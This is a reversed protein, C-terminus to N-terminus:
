CVDLSWVAQLLFSFSKFSFHVLIQGHGWILSCAKQHCEGKDTEQREKCGEKVFDNQQAKGM